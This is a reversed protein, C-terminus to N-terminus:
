MPASRALSRWRKPTAAPRSSRRRASISPSRSPSAARSTGTAGNVLVTEGPKLRARETYAAWSSMGPNAIAAATVDDLDDPLPLCAGLPRGDNRWAATPRKRCSSISGAGDDLRGVGDIASSSPSSARRVTTRAPPAARSSRASPPPPSRMIRSRGRVARSAFDGYVADARRGERNRSEHHKRREIAQLNHTYHVYISRASATLCFLAFYVYLHDAGRLQVARHQIDDADHVPRLAVFQQDLRGAIGSSRASNGSSTPM